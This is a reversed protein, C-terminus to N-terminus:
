ALRVKEAAQLAARETELAAGWEVQQREREAQMEARM